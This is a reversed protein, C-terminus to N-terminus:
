FFEDLTQFFAIRAHDIETLGYTAFFPAVWEAGLNYTISRAALALDFYRDSVGASGWDIFGTLTLRDPDVLVNPLCYDGHVFVPPSDTPRTALLGAYLDSARRGQRPADFDNEDVQHNVLRRHATALLVDIRQDFPCGTIDVAHIMKLAEALLTVIRRPRFRFHEDHSSLGAIESILLFQQADDAGFYLVQPVPLRGALWVLRDHEPRLDHPLAAVKLYGLGDARFIRVGSCGIRNEELATNGVIARLDAPLTDILVV